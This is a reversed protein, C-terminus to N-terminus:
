FVIYTIQIMSHLIIKGLRRFEAWIQCCKIKTTEDPLRIGADIPFSVRSTVSSM